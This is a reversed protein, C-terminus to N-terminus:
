GNKWEEVMFGCFKNAKNVRRFRIDECDHLIRRSIEYITDIDPEILHIGKLAEQIVFPSEDEDHLRVMSIDTDTSMLINDIIEMEEKENATNLFLALDIDSRKHAVGKAFSGYLIAVMVKGEKKFGTLVERLSLLENDM